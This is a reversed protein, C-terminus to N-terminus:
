EREWYWALSEFNRLEIPQSITMWAMGSKKEDECQYLANADLGRLTITVPRTSTQAFTRFVFVVSESKDKSVYQMAYFADHNTELRYVDGFQIIHRWAKYQAILQRAEDMDNTNWFSLNAGIGLVGCMSVHFRFKLSLEVDIMDTVWAEMTSAPYARLFASQMELRRNAITNDSTWVQDAYHLIGLDIRGGGGSCSQWIIQPHRERLTGWVHYLGEVYRVWIERPNHTETQWGAESVNRNMDWKIFDVPNETLLNDLLEILYNQVEPIALNLILQNRAETRSRTPFHIVWEPHERYLNSDPNVMEPEIWLGFKMGLNRVHNILPTIGNPFRSKEPYWDGLGATDDKRGAFWGDDMVFLEVGIAAAKEAFRKQQEIDIDFMTAEWSNYLVMRPEDPHPVISRTYNHLLHSAGTHGAQTYGILASPTTFEDDPNLTLEFDWDNVGMSLRTQHFSNVEATLKWNGSWALAGFWVVGSEETASGDDLAFWPNHQHSTTLRRSELIKVGASLPEHNYNMEDLWKGSLHHLVYQQGVPFHWQASFVREVTIVEDSTNHLTVWREILDYAEHVRYYLIAKLKYTEDELHIQLDDGLIKADTFRLRVDRVGDAFVVFLSPENYKLDEHCPFEEPTTHATSNFSAYPRPTPAPPYDSQFPLKVGHYAHALLGADNIGFTYATNNTELIFYNEARTTVPM